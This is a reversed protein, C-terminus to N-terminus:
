VPTAAKAVVGSESTPPSGADTERLETAQRPGTICTPGQLEDRVTGSRAVSLSRHGVVEHLPQQTLSFTRGYVVFPILVGESFRGVVLFPFEEFVNECEGVPPPMGVGVDQDANIFDGDAPTGNNAHVMVDGFAVELLEHVRLCVSGDRDRIAAVGEIALLDSYERDRLLVPRDVKFLVVGLEPLM